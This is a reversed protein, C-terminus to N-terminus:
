WFGRGRQCPNKPKRLAAEEGAELVIRYGRLGDHFSQPDLLMRRVRPLECDFYEIDPLSQCLCTKGVRRVGALADATAPLASTPPPVM